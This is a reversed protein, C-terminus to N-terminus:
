TISRFISTSIHFADQFTISRTVYRARNTIPVETYRFGSRVARILIESDIGYGDSTMVLKKLPAKRYARFGALADTIPKRTALRVFFTLLLNAILRSKPLSYPHIKSGKSFRTGIVLDAHALHRVLKPIEHPDFSGDGDMTVITDGEAEEIGSRLAHGKGFNDEFRIVKAGRRKAIDWTLDISGDDVVIIEYKMGTKKLVSETEDLVSGISFAENYTPIM